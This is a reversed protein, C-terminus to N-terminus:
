GRPRCFLDSASRHVLLESDYGVAALFEKVEPVSRNFRKILDVEMLVAPRFSQLTKKAGLLVEFDAGEVDIKLVDVRTPAYNAVFEDITTLSITEQRAAHGGATLLHSHGADSELAIAATGAASSAGTRVPTLNDSPNLALNRRLRAHTASVPELAYVHGSPGVWRSALLAFYGINAGVDIFTGGRPTVSRLLATEEPEWFGYHYVSRSVYDTGLELKIGEEGTVIPAALGHAQLWDVARIIAGRGRLRPLRRSWALYARAAPQLIRM